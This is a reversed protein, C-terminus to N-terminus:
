LKIYQIRFIGRHRGCHCCVLSNIGCFVLALPICCAAWGFVKNNLYWSDFLVFMLFVMLCLLSIDNRTYWSWRQAVPREKITITLWLSKHFSLNVFSFRIFHAFPRDIVFDIFIIHISVRIQVQVYVMLVEIKRILIIFEDWETPPASWLNIFMFENQWILIGVNEFSNLRITSHQFCIQFLVLILFQGTKTKIRWNIRDEFDAHIRLIM